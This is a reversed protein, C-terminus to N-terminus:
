PISSSFSLTGLMFALLDIVSCVTIIWGTHRVWDAERSRHKKALFDIQRAIRNAGVDVNELAIVAMKSPRPDIYTRYAKIASKGFRKDFGDPILLVSV